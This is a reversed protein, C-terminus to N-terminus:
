VTFTQAANRSIHLSRQWTSPAGQHEHIDSVLQTYLTLNQREGMVWCNLPEAECSQGWRLCSLFQSTCVCNRGSGHYIHSNEPSGVEKDAHHNGVARLVHSLGKIVIAPKHCFYLDSVPYSLSQTRVRCVLPEPNLEWCQTCHVAISLLSVHALNPFLKWM